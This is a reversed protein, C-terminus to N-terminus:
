PTRHSFDKAQQEIRERGWSNADAQSLTRQSNADTSKGEELADLM